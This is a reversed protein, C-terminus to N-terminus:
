EPGVIDALRSGAPYFVLMEERNDCREWCELIPTLFQWSLEVGDQRWFLLQDGQMCEILVKAYGDVPAGGAMSEYRFDMTVSRLCLAAGPTKAQFTLSIKEEPAIGICLRNATIHEGLLDRLMSHPVERFQIIIETHKAALRKGSTLHFPVGQWRWNDIFVQMSAFTPTLSGAAVGPEQRYGPVQRGDVTGPGYQGLVVQDQLRHRDFPRLARFVKSKEDQVERTAFRSPPEMATLALLQMMHNQFMDRIVGAQEYYAARGGIGLSEVANIRVHDIFQRNWVPEFIANAFRFLLINQVTEKALYHDIRFIEEERFTRHLGTDLELASALDHGFPKEIVLRTWGPREGAPRQLCHRGIMASTLPYLSPPLALYFIRNGGTAHGSELAELRRALSTFSDPSDYTLRQYFLRGAFRHWGATDLTRRQELATRARDRFAADDLRSRGCGLIVCAAPLVASVSLDYLAPLLKRMALDGTAGFIVVVCPQLPEELLCAEGPETIHRSAIM